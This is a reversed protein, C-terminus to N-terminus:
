INFINCNISCVSPLNFGTQVCIVVFYVNCKCSLKTLCKNQFSSWYEFNNPMCASAYDIINHRNKASYVFGWPFINHLHGEWPRLNSLIAARLYSYASSHSHCHPAAGMTFWRGSLRARGRADEGVWDVAAMCVGPGSGPNMNLMSFGGHHVSLLRVEAYPLDFIMSPNVDNWQQQVLQLDKPHLLRSNCAPYLYNRRSRVTRNM